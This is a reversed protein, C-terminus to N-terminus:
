SVSAREGGGVISSFGGVADGVTALAASGDKWACLIAITKHANQGAMLVNTILSEGRQLISRPRGRRAHSKVQAPFKTNLLDKVARPGLSWEPGM